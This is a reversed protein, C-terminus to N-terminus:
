HSTVLESAVKEIQEIDFSLNVMGRSQLEGLHVKQSVWNSLLFPWDGALWATSGNEGGM